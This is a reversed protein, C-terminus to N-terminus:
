SFHMSVKTNEIIRLGGMSGVGGFLNHFHMSVTTNEIIRSGGMGGVGGFLDNLM